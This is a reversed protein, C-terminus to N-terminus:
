VRKSRKKPPPTPARKKATKKPSAKDLKSPPLIQWYSDADRPDVRERYHHLFTRSNVHGMEAMAKGIDQFKAYHYSGYSHRLVDSPWETFKGATRAKELLSYYKDGTPSVPGAKKKHPLLWAKLNDTITVFRKAAIKTNIPDVRILNRELNIHEWDLRWVEAEPRLGAFLGIAIAPQIEDSANELLSSAQEPSLIGVGRPIVKAKSANIFPNKLILGRREAYSFFVGINRKYNNRNVPGGPASRLWDDVEATTISAMNRAGFKKSFKKLRNKLDKLYRSSLGDSEKAQLFKEMTKSVLSTTKEAKLQPLLKNVADRLSLGYPKLIDCCELYEARQREDLAAAATGFNALEVRKRDHFTKAEARNKFHDRQRMGDMGPYIVVFYREGNITTERMRLKTKRM